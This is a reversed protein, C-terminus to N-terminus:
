LEGRRLRFDHLTINLNRRGTEGNLAIDLVLNGKDLSLRMVGTNYDYDKFSEVLINLPQKSNRAINELFRNDRIILMGGQEAACFDGALAILNYGRGKFAVSGGLRGTMQFKKSLNFDKVFKELDLNIFELNGSYERKEDIRFSLGGQVQGGLAQASFSDLFLAKDELRLGSKIEEVKLKNYQVKDIYLNGSDQKQNIKLSANELRFDQSDLYDIEFAVVSIVDRLSLTLINRKLISSPEYQISIEKVRFDYSKGKKIEIDLLTVQRLPKLDCGGITVRSESFAKSLQRKALFIIVPEVFFSIALVFISVFLLIYILCKM